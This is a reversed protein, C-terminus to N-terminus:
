AVSCLFVRFVAAGFSEESNMRFRVLCLPSFSSPLRHSPPTSSRVLQEPHLSILGSVGGECSLGDIMAFDPIKMEGSGVALGQFIVEKASVCSKMFVCRKM